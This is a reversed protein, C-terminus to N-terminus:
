AGVVVEVGAGSGVVVLELVGVLVAAAGDAVAVPEEGELPPLTM